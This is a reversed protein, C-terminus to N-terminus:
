DKIEELTYDTYVQIGNEDAIIAAITVESLHSIDDDRVGGDDAIYTTYEIHGASNEFAILIKDKDLDTILIDKM